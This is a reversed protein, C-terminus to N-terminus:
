VPLHDIVAHCCWRNQGVAGICVSSAATPSCIGGYSALTRKVLQHKEPRHMDKEACYLASSTRIKASSTAGPEAPRMWSRRCEPGAQESGRAAPKGAAPVGSTPRQGCACPHADTSKNVARECLMLDEFLAASYLTGSLREASYMAMGFIM